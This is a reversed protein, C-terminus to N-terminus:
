SSRQKNSAISPMITALVGVIIKYIIKYKFNALAILIYHNVSDAHHIEPILM